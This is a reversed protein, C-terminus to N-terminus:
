SDVALAVADVLDAVTTFTRKVFLDDPLTFDLEDELQVLMGLFGLSNIRLLGGNLPEAEAIEDPDLRLRSELAVIRRVVRSVEVRRDQTATM